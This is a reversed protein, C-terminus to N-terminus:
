GLFTGLFAAHDLPLPSNTSVFNFDNESLLSADVNHLTITNAADIGRFMIVTDNTGAIQRSIVDDFSQAILAVDLFDEGLKFKYVDDSGFHDAYVFLDSEAGGYLSDNGTGGIMVSLHPGAKIIDDGGEGAMVSFGGNKAAKIIDNGDAGYLFNSSKGGLITDDGQSGVIGSGGEERARSIIVTGQTVDSFNVTSVDGVYVKEIGVFSKDDFVVYGSGQVFLTDEGDGGDLSSAAGTIVLRDNGDGGLLTDRGGAGRLTDNGIGGALVNAAANGTLVDGHKSGTLNGIETLIDGQADGGTNIGSALNVRVGSGSQEYSATNDGDGGDLRDAGAGGELLDNGSGGHLLDAFDGGELATAGTRDSYDLFFGGSVRLLTDFNFTIDQGDTDIEDGIALIGSRFDVHIGISPVSSFYDGGITVSSSSSSYDAGLTIYTDAM